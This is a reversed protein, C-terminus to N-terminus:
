GLEQRLRYRALIERRQPALNLPQELFPLAFSNEEGVLAEALM